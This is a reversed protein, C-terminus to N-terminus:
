PLEPDLPAGEPVEPAFPLSDASCVLQYRSFRALQISRNDDTVAYDSGVEVVTFAAKRRPDKPRWRQGIQVVPAAAPPRSPRKAPAEAAKEVSAVTLAATLTVSSGNMTAQAEVAKVGQTMLPSPKPKAPPITTPDEVVAVPSGNFSDATTKRVIVPKIHLVRYYDGKVAIIMGPSCGVALRHAVEETTENDQVRYRFRQVVNM